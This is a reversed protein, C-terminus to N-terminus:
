IFALLHPINDDGDLPEQAAAIQEERKALFEADDKPKLAKEIRTAIRDWAMRYTNSQTNRAYQGCYLQMDYVFHPDNIVDDFTMGRERAAKIIPNAFVHLHRSM